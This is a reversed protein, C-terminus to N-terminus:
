STFYCAARRVGGAARRVGGAARRGPPPAHIGPKGGRGIEFRAPDARQIGSRADQGIHFAGRRRWAKGGLKIDGNGSKGLVTSACDRPVAPQMTRNASLLNAFLLNASFLIFCAKSPLSCCRGTAQCISIFNNYQLIIHRSRWQM